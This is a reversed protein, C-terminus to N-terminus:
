QPFYCTVDDWPGFDDGEKAEIQAHTLTRVLHTSGKGSDLRSLFSDKGSLPTSPRPRRNHSDKEMMDFCIGGLSPLLQVLEAADGTKSRRMLWPSLEYQVYTFMRRKLSERAGKLVKLEWGQTDIKMFTIHSVFTFQPLISDLTVIPVDGPGLSAASGPTSVKGINAGYDLEGTARHAEKSAAGGMHAVGNTEDLGAAIIYATGRGSVPDLPPFKAKLVSAPLRWMAAALAPAAAAAGSVLDVVHIRSDRAFKKRLAAVNPPDPEFGIVNFGNAVAAETELADFALGVDVVVRGNGHQRLLRPVELNKM